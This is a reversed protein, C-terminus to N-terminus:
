YYMQGIPYHYLRENILISTPQIQPSSNNSLFAFIPAILPLSLFGKMAAKQMQPIWIWDISQLSDLLEHILWFFFEYRYDNNM